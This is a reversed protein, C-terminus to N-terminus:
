EGSDKILRRRARLSSAALLAERVRGAVSSSVRSTNSLAQALKLCLDPSDVLAGVRRVVQLEADRLEDLLELESAALELLVREDAAADPAMGTLEDSRERARAALEERPQLRLVHRKPPPEHDSPQEAIKPLPPGTEDKTPDEWWPVEAPPTNTMLIM